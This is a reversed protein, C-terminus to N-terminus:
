KKLKRLAKRVAHIVAPKQYDELNLIIERLAIDDPSLKGHGDALDNPLCQLPVSLKERHSENMIALGTCFRSIQSQHIGIVMGSLTVQDFGFHDMLMILNLAGSGLPRSNEGLSKHENKKRM